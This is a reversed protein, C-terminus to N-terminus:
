LTVPFKQDILLLIIKACLLDSTSLIRSHTRYIYLYGYMTQGLGPLAQTKAYFFLTKLIRNLIRSCGSYFAEESIKLVEKFIKQKRASIDDLSFNFYTFLAM